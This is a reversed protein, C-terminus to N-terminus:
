IKFSTVVHYSFNELFGIPFSFLVHWDNFGRGFDLGTLKELHLYADALFYGVRVGGFVVDAPNAHIEVRFPFLISVIDAVEGEVGV